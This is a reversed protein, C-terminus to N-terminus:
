RDKLAKGLKAWTSGVHSWPNSRRGRIKGEALATLFQDKDSFQPMEVYATGIHGPMHADSGASALLRHDKAFREAMIVHRQLLLRSNLVEIIDIFPLIEELTQRQITSRRLRDFPHPICVLGGQEKIIRATEAAPLGKPIEEVLFYGIVEGTSTEIENGVIVTFPAIRKLEVAGAITNHDTVAICDMGVDLCRDITQELSTNCDGSYITHIHLDAKIL